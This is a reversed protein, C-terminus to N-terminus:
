PLARIHFFCTLFECFFVELEDARGEEGDGERARGGQPERWVEEVGQPSLDPTPVRENHEWVGHHESSNLPRLARLDSAVITDVLLGRSVPRLFVLSKGRISDGCIIDSQVVYLALPQPYAEGFARWGRHDRWWTMGRWLILRRALLSNKKFFFAM